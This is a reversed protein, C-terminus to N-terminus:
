NKWTLWSDIEVTNSVDTNVGAFTTRLYQATYDIPMTCTDSYDAGYAIGSVSTGSVMIDRFGVWNTDDPSVEVSFDAYPGAGANTVNIKNMFTVKDKDGVFFSSSTDATPSADLTIDNM